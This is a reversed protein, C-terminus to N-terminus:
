DGFDGVAEWHQGNIAELVLTYSGPALMPADAPAPLTVTAQAGTIGSFGVTETGFRSAWVYAYRNDFATEALGSLTAGDWSAVTGNADELRASIIYAAGTDPGADVYAHFSLAGNDAIKVDSLSVNHTHYAVRSHLPGVVAGFLIHYSGVTFVVCIVALTWSLRKVAGASLPGSTLWPFWRWSALGPMRRAMVADLSFTGAGSIVVIGSLAVGSVAMTWEDLCTSGMWGFILMLNLNLFISVAAMSRTFVGAILGIGVALEALTWGWVAALLLDPNALTWELIDQIWLTGPLAHTMKNAVFGMSDIDLKVAHGVGDIEHWDYIMRRSAGGWFIFGQVFRVGVVALAFLQFASLWDTTGRDQRAVDSM